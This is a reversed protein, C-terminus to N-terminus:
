AANKRLLNMKTLLRTQYMEYKLSLRLAHLTSVFLFHWTESMFLGSLMSLRVNITKIPVQMAFFAPLYIMEKIINLKLCSGSVLM